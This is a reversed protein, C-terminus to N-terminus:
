SEEKDDWSLKFFERNNSAYKEPETQRLKADITFRKERKKDPTTKTGITTADVETGDFKFSGSTIRELVYFGDDDILSTSAKYYRAMRFAKEHTYLMIKIYIEQHEEYTEGYDDEKGYFHNTFIMMQYRLIELVTREIQNKFKFHKRIYNYSAKGANGMMSDYDANLEHTFNIYQTQYLPNLLGWLVAIRWVDETILYLKCMRCLRMIDELWLDCKFVSIEVTNKFRIRALWDKELTGTRHINLTVSPVEGYMLSIGLPEVYSNFMEVAIDAMQDLTILKM